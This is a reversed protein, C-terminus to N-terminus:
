VHHQKFWKLSIFVSESLKYDNSHTRRHIWFWDISFAYKLKSRMSSVSHVQYFHHLIFKMVFSHAKSDSLIKCITWHSLYLSLNWCYCLFFLHGHMKYKVIWQIWEDICQYQYKCMHLRHGACGVSIIWNVFVVLNNSSDIASQNFNIVNSLKHM